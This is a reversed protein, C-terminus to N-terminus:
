KSARRRRPAAKGNPKGNPRGSRGAQAAQAFASLIDTGGDADEKEAAAELMDELREYMEDRYRQDAQEYKQEMVDMRRSMTDVIQTLKEYAVGTAFKHADALLRAILAFRATEPDDHLYEPLPPQEPEAKKEDPEPGDWEATKIAREIGGSKGLCQITVPDLADISAALTAWRVNSPVSFDHTEDDSTRVRVAEPRPTKLLWSRIQQTRGAAM